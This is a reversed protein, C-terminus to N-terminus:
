VPRIPLLSSLVFPQVCIWCDIVFQFKVIYSYQVNGSQHVSQAINHPEAHYNIIYDRGWVGGM